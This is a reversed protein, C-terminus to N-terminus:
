HTETDNGFTPTAKRKGTRRKMRSHSVRSSPAVTEITVAEENTQQGSRFAKAWEVEELSDSYRHARSYGKLDYEPDSVGVTPWVRIPDYRGYRDTLVWGLEELRTHARTATRRSMGSWAALQDFGYICPGRDHWYYWDAYTRLLAKERGQLRASRIVRMYPFYDDNTLKRM